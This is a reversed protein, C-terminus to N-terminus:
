ASSRAIKNGAHGFDRRPDPPAAGGQYVEIHLITGLSPNANGALKGNIENFFKL